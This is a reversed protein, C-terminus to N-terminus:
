ETMAAAATIDDPEVRQLGRAESQDVASRHALSRGSPGANKQYKHGSQGATLMAPQGSFRAFHRKKGKPKKLKQSNSNEDKEVLVM